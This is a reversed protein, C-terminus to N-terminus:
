GAMVGSRVWGHKIPIFSLGQVEPSTPWQVVKFSMALFRHSSGLHCLYLHAPVICTERRWHWRLHLASAVSWRSM